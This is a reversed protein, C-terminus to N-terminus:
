NLLLFGVKKADLLVIEIISGDEAYSINPHWDQLAGRMIPKDSVPIQLIDNGEFYIAKM